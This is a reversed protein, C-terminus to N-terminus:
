DPDSNFVIGTRRGRLDIPNNQDLRCKSPNAVVLLWCSFQCSFDFARIYNGNCNYHASSAYMVSNSTLMQWIYTLELLRPHLVSSQVIATTTAIERGTKHSPQSSNNANGICYFVKILVSTMLCFMGIGGSIIIIITHCIWSTPVREPRLM